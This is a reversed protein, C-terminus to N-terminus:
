RRRFIYTFTFAAWGFVGSSTNINGGTRTEAFAGSVGGEFVLRVSRTPEVTFGFPLGLTQTPAGNYPDLSLPLAWAFRAAGFIRVPSRGLTPTTLILNFTSGIAQYTSWSGTSSTQSWQNAGGVDILVAIFDRPAVKYSISGALGVAGNTAFGTDLSLGVEQRWGTGIRVKAGFAACCKGNPNQGEGGGGATSVAV